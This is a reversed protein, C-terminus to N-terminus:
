QVLHMGSTSSCAYAKYMGQHGLRCASAQAAQRGVEDISLEINRIMVDGDVQAVQEVRGPGQQLLALLAAAKNWSPSRTRDLLQDVLCVTYNHRKAYVQRNHELAQWVHPQLGVGLTLVVTRRSPSDHPGYSFCRGM